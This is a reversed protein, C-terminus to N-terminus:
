EVNLTDDSKNRHKDGQNATNSEPGGLFITSGARSVVVEGIDRSKHENGGDEVQNSPEQAPGGHEGESGGDEENGERNHEGITFTQTTTSGRGAATITVSSVSTDDDLADTSGQGEESNRELAQVETGDNINDDKDDNSDEIDDTSSDKGVQVGDVDSSGDEDDEGDEGKSGEEARTGKEEARADEGGVEEHDDKRSSEVIGGILRSALSSSSGDHGEDTHEDIGEPDDNREVDETLISISNSSVDSVLGGGGVLSGLLLSSM